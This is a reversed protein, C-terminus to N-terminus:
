KCNGKVYELMGREELWEALKIDDSPLKYGCQSCENTLWESADWDIDNDTIPRYELDVGRTTDFFTLGDIKAHLQVSREEQIQNNSCRPCIFHIKARKM